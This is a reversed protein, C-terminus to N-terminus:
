IREGLRPYRQAYLSTNWSVARLESYRRVCSFHPSLHLGSLEALDSRGVPEILQDLRHPGMHDRRRLQLERKRWGHHPHQQLRSLRPRRRQVRRDFRHRCACSLDPLNRYRGLRCPEAALHRQECDDVRCKRRSPPLCMMDLMVSWRLFTLRVMILTYRTATAARGQTARRSASDM